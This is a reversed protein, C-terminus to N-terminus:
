IEKNVHVANSEQARLTLTAVQANTLVATVLNLPRTTYLVLQVHKALIILGILSYHLQAILDADKFLTTLLITLPAAIVSWILVIVQIEILVLLAIWLAHRVFRNLNILSNMKSVILAACKLLILTHQKIAIQEANAKLHFLNPTIIASHANNKPLHVIGSVHRATPRALNANKIERIPINGM